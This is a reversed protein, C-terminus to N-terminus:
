ITGIKFGNRKDEFKQLLNAKMPDRPKRGEEKFMVSTFVDAFYVSNEKDSAELFKEINVNM